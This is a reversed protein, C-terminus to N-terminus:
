RKPGKWQQHRDSGATTGRGSPFIRSIAWLGAVVYLLCVGVLVLWDSMAM